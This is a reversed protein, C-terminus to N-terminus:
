YGEENTKKGVQVIPKDIDEEIAPKENRDINTRNEMEKNEASSEMVPEEKWAVLKKM